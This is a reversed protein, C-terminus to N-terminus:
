TVLRAPIDEPLFGHPYYQKKYSAKKAKLQREGEMAEKQTPYLRLVRLRDTYHRDDRDLHEKERRAPNNTYGAYYYDGLRTRYPMLYVFFVEVM